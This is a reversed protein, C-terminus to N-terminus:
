PHVYGYFGLLIRIFIMFIMIYIYIRVYDTAMDYIRM